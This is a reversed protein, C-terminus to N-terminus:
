WGIWERIRVGIGLGLVICKDGLKVIKIVFTLSSQPHSYRLNYCHPGTASWESPLKRQTGDGEILLCM